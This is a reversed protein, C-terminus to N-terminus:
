NLQKYSYCGNSMSSQYRPTSPQDFKNSGQLIDQYDRYESEQLDIKLEKCFNKTYEWDVQLREINIVYDFKKL